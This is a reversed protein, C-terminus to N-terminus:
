CCGGRRPPATAAPGSGAIPGGAGYAGASGTQPAHAEHGAGHGGCGGMGSTRGHRRHGLHMYLMGAGLLIWIWNSALFHAM